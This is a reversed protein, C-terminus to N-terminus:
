KKDTLKSLKNFLYTYVEKYEKPKKLPNYFSIAFDRCRLGYCHLHSEKIVLNDIISKIEKIRKESM